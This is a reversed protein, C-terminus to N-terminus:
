DNTSLEAQTIYRDPSLEIVPQPSIKYKQLRELNVSLMPLNTIREALQYIRGDNLLGDYVRLDKRSMAEVDSAKRLYASVGLQKAQSSLSFSPINFFDLSENLLRLYANDVGQLPMSFLADVKLSLRGYCDLLKKQKEKPTATSLNIYCPEIRVKSQKSLQELVSFFAQKKGEDRDELILGISQFGLVYHLLTLSYLRYDDDNLKQSFLAYFDPADRGKEEQLYMTYRKLLFANHIVPLKQWGGQKYVNFFYKKGRIEGNEHYAHLGTVGVWAPLYHLTSALLSPVTSGASEIAQVLLMMSDYGQAANYDAESAYRQKYRKAFAISQSSIKPDFLSPVITNIANDGAQELYAHHSLSDDGLIPVSVGMERLQRVMRGAAKAPASLFIADFNENNFKDIIARFNEQSAFFSARKTIQIGQELVADEFLFVQERHLEERSYLTIIKQYGLTAALGAVQQAIAETSPAMRFVYKFGHGTLRKATAFSPMFIVNAREYLVSAPIAVRSSRHGLVATIQPNSIVQEIVKQSKHSDGQAIYTEIKVPRGLLKKSRQNIEEAALLVGNLYQSDTKDQIAAVYIAGKAYRAYNLRAEALSSYDVSCASLLGICILLLVYRLHTM